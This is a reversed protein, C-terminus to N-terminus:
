QMQMWLRGNEPKLLESPRPWVSVCIQHSLKSCLPRIGDLNELVNNYTREKQPLAQLFYQCKKSPHNAHSTKSIAADKQKFLSRNFARKNIIQSSLFM